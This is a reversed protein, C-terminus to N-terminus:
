ERTSVRRPEVVLQVPLAASENRLPSNVEVRGVIILPQTTAPVWSEAVIRMTRSTEQETILVGNLGVDDVRVGHPMNMVSIPVRGTFGNRRDVRVTLHTMGGAPLQVADLDTTVVLDPAPALAVVPLPDPNYAERTVERGDITARATLRIDTLGPLKVEALRFGSGAGGARSFGHAVPVATRAIAHSRDLSADEAATLLLVTTDAGAPIVGRTATFGAPLDHLEVDIPGDVGDRREATVLVSIRGGRPVNFSKPDVTVEFDPTAERVTLRYAFREGELGRVDRLRVFYEGAAPASFHLRSDKGGYRPGGDDNSYNVHFAPMGNPSLQAGPPHIEVKYVPTGVSHNRPTTDLLGVRSGRFNKFVIDDDPHTPMSAVQLLEGGIMVYDDIALDTWSAIRISRRGADPDNLTIETQATARITARPVPRGNADLIELVSDLPSGLQQAMVEFVLDQGKRAAVRYVDEDAVSRDHRSPDSFAPGSWIVGNVTSPVELAPAAALQDNPEVEFTEAYEGIAISRRNLSPGALSRVSVPVTKSYAMLPEGRVTVKQGAPVNPGSVVVAATAGRRVGLPFVHTIYPFRGAYVRYHHNEGSGREADTVMLRYRGRRAFRHTLLSDRNGDFDNNEAVVRGRSDALRLLSDMQSGLPRALVAFVLEEGARADFEYTDIEGPSGLAGVLTAPLSVMAVSTKEEGKEMVEPFPGVAFALLNSVGLPTRVRFAYIGPPVTPAVKVLASVSFKRAKDEIPADTRVVGKPLVEKKIPVEQVGLIVASLGSQNFVLGTLAGINTGEITVRAQSGRQAGTPMVTQLTPPATQALAVTATCALLITLLSTERRM